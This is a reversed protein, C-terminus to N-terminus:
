GNRPLKSWPTTRDDSPEKPLGLVREAIINRQVQDTGGYISPAQAFLAGETIYAAKVHGTAATLTERDARSYAHLMGLPGIISLGLDRSARVADSMALKGINGVGPLERGRQREARARLGTFRAIENLIHLRMLEQRIVPDNIKGNARALEILMAESGAVEPEARGSGASPPKVFDIAPKVLDNIVSGALALVAGAKGGGSLGQREFALTANAVRWGNDVGGIVYRNPVNADSLFVENFMARGTMERLPRIDVAGPQHMNLAMWTIGQHKPAAPNTRTLLMGMDALHGGSTWVKQGNVVWQDGDQLARAALGALDSGAGPESFLQCWSHQGTVIPPILEEIQELSGHTAITPAALLMGLGAPAGLAGFARIQVAVALAESHSFGKGYADAPLAPHAWGSLGLREWWQGVTLESDWNKKLWEDLADCSTSM